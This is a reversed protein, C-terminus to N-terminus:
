QLGKEKLNKYPNLRPKERKQPCNSVCSEQAEAARNREEIATRADQIRRNEEGLRSRSALQAVAVCFGEAVVVVVALSTATLFSNCEAETNHFATLWFTIGWSPGRM